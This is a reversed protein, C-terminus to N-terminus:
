MFRGRPWQYVWFPSLLMAFGILIFPVGFLPFLHFLSLGHKSFNPWPFRGSWLDLFPRVRDLSNRFHFCQHFDPHLIPSHAHRDM